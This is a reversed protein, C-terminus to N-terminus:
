SIASPRQSQTNGDKPQWTGQHTSREALKVLPWGSGDRSPIPGHLCPLRYFATCCGGFCKAHVGQPYSHIVSLAAVTLPRPQTVVGVMTPGSPPIKAPNQRIGPKLNMPKKASSASAMTLSRGLHTLLSQISGHLYRLTEPM